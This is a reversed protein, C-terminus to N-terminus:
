SEAARVSQAVGASADGLTAARTLRRGGRRHRRRLDRVRDQRRQADLVGDAQSDAGGHGSVSFSSILANTLKIKM